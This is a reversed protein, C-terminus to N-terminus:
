RLRPSLGELRDGSRPRGTVSRGDRPVILVRPRPAETKIVLPATYECVVKRARGRGVVVRKCPAAQRPAAKPKPKAARPSVPRAPPSSPRPEAAAVGGLLVVALIWAKRM